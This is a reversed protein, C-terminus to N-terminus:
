ALLTAVHNAPLPQQALLSTLTGAFVWALLSASAATGIRQKRLLVLGTSAAAVTLGAFFFAPVRSAMGQPLISSRALLLGVAFATAIWVGPVKM